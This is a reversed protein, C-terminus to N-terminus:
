AQPRNRYQFEPDDQHEVAIKILEEKRIELYKAFAEPDYAGISAYVRDEYIKALHSDVWKQGYANLDM